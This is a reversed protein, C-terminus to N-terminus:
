KQNFVNKQIAQFFETKENTNMGSVDFTIKDESNKMYDITDKNNTLVGYVMM